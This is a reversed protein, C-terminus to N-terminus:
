QISAPQTLLKRLVRIPSRVTRAYQNCFVRRAEIVNPDMWWDYVRDWVAGVAAAAAEPTDHLIGATRLLEYYPRAEPLLHDLGGNWFCTTPIGLALTELIGTSDYSHVVVRSAGVLTMIPTSGKEVAINPAYEAWRLDEAWQHKAYEGHLRVTLEGVVAEPLAKVFRFQEDQYTAFEADSDHPMIRHPITVEILLLGGSRDGARAKRGATKFLFAPVTRPDGDRWGWTLFRDPAAREPWFDAGWWRHTGYNNGHQGVIYTVGEEVKGAVWIKFQEDTDFANSTFVFRPRRPWALEDAGTRLAGHGEVFCAPIVERWLEGVLRDFEGNGLVIRPLKARVDASPVASGNGTGRWLQPVQGLSLELRVRPGLPLYTSMLFADHGRSLRPLLAMAVEGVRDSVRRQMPLAQVPRVFRGAVTTYRAGTHVPLACDSADMEDLIRAYLVHNWLDDNAAWVFSDSDDTALTYGCTDLVTTGDIGGIALANKLAAYRNYVVSVYRIVWHGLIIRWYRVSHQEGHFADLAAALHALFLEAVRRVEASDCDKDEATVGYAPAIVTDLRSWHERRRYRRCWEGLFLLPRDTPWSEELATTVLHRTLGDHRPPSETHQALLADVM